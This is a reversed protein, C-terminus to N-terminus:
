RTIYLDNKASWLERYIGSEKKVCINIYKVQVPVEYTELWVRSYSYAGSLNQGSVEM